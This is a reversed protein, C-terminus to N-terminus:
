LIKGGKKKNNIRKRWRERKTKKVESIDNESVVEAHLIEDICVEVDAIEEALNVVIEDITRPTPNDNRLKRAMKLCAQSLENCEEALQELTAPLGIETIINM